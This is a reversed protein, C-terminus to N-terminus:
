WFFDKYFTFRKWPHSLYKMNHGKCHIPSYPLIYVSTTMRITPQSTWWLINFVTFTFLTVMKSINYKNCYIFLNYTYPWWWRLLVLWLLYFYILRNRLDRCMLLMVVVSHMFAKAIRRRLVNPISISFMQWERRFSQLRHWDLMSNTLTCFYWRNYYMLIVLCSAVNSSQWEVSFLPLTCVLCM